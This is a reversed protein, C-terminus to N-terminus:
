GKILKFALLAVGGLVLLPMLQAIAAGANGNALGARQLEIQRKAARDANFNDLVSGVGRSLLNVVANGVSASPAAIAGGQSDQGGIANGLADFDLWSGDDFTQRM